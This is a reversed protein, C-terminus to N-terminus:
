SYAICLIRNETVCLAFGIGTGQVPIAVCLRWMDDLETNGTENARNEIERRLVNKGRLDDHITHLEGAQLGEADAKARPVGGLVYPLVNFGDVVVNTCVAGPSCKIDAILSKYRGTTTGVVGRVSDL